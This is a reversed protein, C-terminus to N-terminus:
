WWAEMSDIDDAMSMMPTFLNEIHAVYSEDSAM